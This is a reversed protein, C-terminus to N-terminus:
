SDQAMVEDLFHMTNVINILATFWSIISIGFCQRRLEDTFDDSNVMTIDPYTGATPLRPVNGFLAIIIRVAFCGIAFLILIIILGDTVSDSVYMRRLQFFIKMDYWATTCTVLLMASLVTNLFSAVLYLFKKVAGDSYEHILM